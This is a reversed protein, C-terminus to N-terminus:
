SNFKPGLRLASGLKVWVSRQMRELRENLVDREASLRLANDANAAAAKRAENLAQTKLDLEQMHRDLKRGTELAWAAKEEVAANLREITKAAESRQADSATQIELLGRRAASLEENLNVLLRTKEGLQKRATEADTRMANNNERLDVAQGEATKLQEDLISAVRASEELRELAAATEAQQTAYGDQLEAIRLQAARLQDNLSYVLHSKEEADRAIFTVEAQQTTQQDQLEAARRKAVQLEEEVARARQSQEELYHALVIGQAQQEAHLDQLEVIRLQAAKLQEDLSLAWQSKEELHRALTIAQGQQEAYSDQLEVVRHQATRFQQDLSLAWQSKEEFQRALSTAQAQREAHSDQLELIRHQATKLQEDLTLAWQSKEELLGALVSAQKQVEAYKAQLEVIRAQATKLQTKLSGAWWIKEISQAQQEQLEAVRAQAATLERDLSLAWASREEFERLIQAAQAREATLERELSLAWQSKEQLEKAIALAHSQENAYQNQLDGIRARAATLQEDLSHAWNNKEQLHKELDKYQDLLVNRSAMTEDLWRKVDGIELKLKRIHAERERLLNAASPVFLFPRVPPLPDQSCVAVFFNSAAPDNSTRLLQAQAAGGNGPEYFAFSELRDQMLIKLHPFFEQLAARFEAYEFEHAHFPNPGAEGRAEAYYLTNPTSVIFLGGPHLVRRTQELLARWNSLHEILEFAVVVDFSADHLPVDEASALVFRASRYQASAYDIAEPAIDVGVAETAHRALEATGYGTGCGLDLVRRGVVFRAAFAYRAIHEAWLDDEVHGPIVREGTFEIM